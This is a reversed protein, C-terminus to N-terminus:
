PFLIRCAVHCPWIFCFGVVVLDMFRVFDLTIFYCNILQRVGEIVNQGVHKQGCVRQDGHLRM